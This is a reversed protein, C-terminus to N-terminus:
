PEIEGATKRIIERAIAEPTRDSTDVIHHAASQYLPARVVLMRLIHSHLDPVDKLLPRSESDSQVRQLVTEVRATLWVVPCTKRLLSLNEVRLVIGGGTAIVCNSREVVRKLTESEQDRFRVEGQQEFLQPVSLGTTASLVTDTDAFEWKLQAALAMGVTSKGCGMFGILAIRNGM